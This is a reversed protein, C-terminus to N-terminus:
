PQNKIRTDNKDILLKLDELKPVWIRLDSWDIQFDTGAQLKKLLEMFAKLVEVSLHIKTRKVRHVQCVFGFLDAADPHFCCGFCHFRVYDPSEKECENCTRMDCSKVLKKCIYCLAYNPM